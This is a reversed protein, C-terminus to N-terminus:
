RSDDRERVMLLATGDPTDVEGLRHFGAKEYSRIARVNDPSPDAQVRTVKPNAFLYAVFARIMGTGLGRSLQSGDALFQDIGLVGPDHVDPWWGGGSEAAVYSQIFGVPNGARWVVPHFQFEAM